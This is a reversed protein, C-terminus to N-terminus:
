TSPIVPVAPATLVRTCHTSFTCDSVAVDFMELMESACPLLWDTTKLVFLTPPNLLATFMETVPKGLPTEATTVGAVMAAGPTPATAILNVAPLVAVSPPEFTEMMALPPPSVAESGKVSVTVGAGANVRM